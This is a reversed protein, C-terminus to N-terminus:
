DIFDYVIVRSTLPRLVEQASQKHRPDALYADLAERNSFTMVIAVDFSSDVIGRESPLVPGASVRVVGPLTRFSKSVEILQQRASTSGPEKLWCIVIHHVQETGASTTSVTACAPVLAVVLLLLTFLRRVQSSM